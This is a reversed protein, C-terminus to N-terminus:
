SYACPISVTSHVWGGNPLNIIAIGISNNPKEGNVYRKIPANAPNNIIGTIYMRALRKNLFLFHAIKAPNNIINSLKWKACVLIAVTSLKKTNNMNSAANNGVQIVALHPKEKMQLVKQKLEATIKEAVTKGDIIVTM